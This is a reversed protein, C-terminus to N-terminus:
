PFSKTTTTNMYLGNLLGETLSDFKQQLDDENNSSEANYSTPNSMVAAKLAPENSQLAADLAGQQEPESTGPRPNSALRIAMEGPEGIHPMPELSPFEQSASQGFQTEPALSAHKSTEGSGDSPWSKGDNPQHGAIEDADAGADLASLTEDGVRATAGAVLRVYHEGDPTSLAVNGSMVAIETGNDDISLEFTAATGSATLHPTEIRKVDDAAAALRLRLKGHHATLTAANNNVSLNLMTDGSATLQLGSRSAILYASGDMVIQSDNTLFDGTQLVEDLFIEENDIAVNGRSELVRWSIVSQQSEGPSPPGSQCGTLGIAMVATIISLIPFSNISRWGATM